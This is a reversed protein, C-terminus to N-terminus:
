VYVNKRDTNNISCTISSSAQRYPLSLKFILKMGCQLMIPRICETHSVGAGVSVSGLEKYCDSRCYTDELQTCLYREHGFQRTDIIM